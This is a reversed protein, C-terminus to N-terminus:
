INGNDIEGRLQIYDDYYMWKFGKHFEQNGKCCRIINTHDFGADREAERMSEWIKVLEYDLTLQVVSKSYPNDKGKRGPVGNNKVKKSESNHQRTLENNNNEKQTVWRLNWVENKTRITNIHDVNPKNEPNPIFAKAVLRHVKFVKTKGKISLNIVFYGKKDKSLKLIKEQGTRKYNLSKVRGYNSIQYLGEYGEIDKWEEKIEM